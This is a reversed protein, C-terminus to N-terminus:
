INLFTYVFRKGNEVLESVAMETPGARGEIKGDERM